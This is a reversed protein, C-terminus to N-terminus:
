NKQYESQIEQVAKVFYDGREGFDHFRDFSACANSMLVVGGVYRLKEFCYRVATAIDDSLIVHVGFKKGCTAIASATQGVAVVIADKGQISQFIPDYSEGKDSGGAILALKCSFCKIASVTAHVNTAKSDNVFEVGCISAVKQLRHPPFRFDALANTAATLDVGACHCALIAALANSLNHRLFGAIPASNARLTKNATRLILMEGDIYCNASRDFVSYFLKACKCHESEKVSLPDDLNFLAFGNTQHLFNNRKALIYDDLDRHYNLHDPALNTLVSVFPAFQRCDRLQFSSSELVVTEDQAVDLVQSSFPVGGNGLLRSKVNCKQLIHYIMECVTTKGNTGTVSICKGKCLGFCYELEGVIECGNKEATLLGKAFPPVGPSVIVLSNESFIVNADKDVADDYITANKGLRQLMKAVSQGTKGNGYVMIDTM